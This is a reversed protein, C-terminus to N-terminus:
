VKLNSLFLPLIQWVIVIFPTIFVLQIMPAKFQLEQLKDSPM